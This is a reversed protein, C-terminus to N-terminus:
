PIRALMTFGSAANWSERKHDSSTRRPRLPDGDLLELLEVPLAVDQADRDQGLVNGLRHQEERRVARGLGGAAREGHVSAPSIGKGASWTLNPAFRAGWGSGASCNASASRTSASPKSASQHPSWMRNLM